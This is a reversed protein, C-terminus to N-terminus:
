NNNMWQRVAKSIKYKQQTDDIAKAKGVKDAYDLWKVGQETIEGNKDIPNFWPKDDSNGTYSNSTSSSTATNGGSQAYKSDEFGSYVDAAVGLMKMAVSLADTLAMKYGEDSSYLGSHSKSVLENGGTGPIGESWEGDIRVFLLVNCFCMLVNDAGQETWQKEITFKWGVGCPGFVETMRQYRWQPSIDTKGKLTGGMIKKKGWDPVSKLQDYYKTNQM